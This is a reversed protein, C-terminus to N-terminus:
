HIHDLLFNAALQENKNRALFVELVVRREFGMAELRNIAEDDVATVQLQLLDEEPQALENDGYTGEIHEHLHLLRSRYRHIIGRLMAVNRDVRDQHSPSQESQNRREFSEKNLVPVFGANNHRITQFLPPNQKEMEEECGTSAGLDCILLSLGGYGFGLRVKTIIIAIVSKEFVKNAEMTTEDRLKEGKHILIQQASPHESAGMVTEINKKVEAVSDNPKVEIEFRIGKLTKVIIKMKKCVLPIHNWNGFGIRRCSHQLREIEAETRAKVEGDKATLLLTKLAEIKAQLSKIQAALPTQRKERQKPLRTTPEERLEVHPPVPQIDLAEEPSLLSLPVDHDENPSLLSLPVDTSSPLTLMPPPQNFISNASMAQYFAANTDQLLSLGNAVRQSCYDEIFKKVEEMTLHQLHFILPQRQMSDPALLQILLIAHCIFGIGGYIDLKSREEGEKLHVLERLLRCCNCAHVGDSITPTVPVPMTSSGGIEFDLGNAGGFVRTSLELRTSDGVINEGNDNGIEGPVDNNDNHEDNPQEFMDLPITFGDEVFSLTEFEDKSDYNSISLDLEHFLHTEDVDSPLTPLVSPPTHETFSMDMLNPNIDAMVNILDEDTFPGFGDFPDNIYPDEYGDDKPASSKPDDGAM